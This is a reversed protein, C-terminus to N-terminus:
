EFRFRMRRPQWDTPAIEQEADPFALTDLEALAAEDAGNSHRQPTIRALENACLATEGGSQGVAGAAGEGAAYGTAHESADETADEAAHEKARTDQALIEEERTKEQPTKQERAKEERAEEERNKEERNKEERAEELEAIRDFMGRGVRYVTPMDKVVTAADTYDQDYDVLGDLNALVPDLRWLRRLARTKFRQPLAASLFARLEEPRDYSEPAEFGAEALIEADPRTDEAASGTEPGLESRTEPGIEPGFEPGIEPGFGSGTEPGIEAFAGAAKGAQGAGAQGAEARARAAQEERRVAAKRRSWFDSGGRM